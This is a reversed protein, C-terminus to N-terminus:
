LLHQHVQIQQQEQMELLQIEQPEKLEMLDLMEVLLHEEEVVVEEEPGQVPPWRGVLEELDEVLIEELDELARHHDLEEEALLHLTDVLAAPVVPAQSGPGSLHAERLDVMVELVVVAQLDLMVPIEQIELGEREM